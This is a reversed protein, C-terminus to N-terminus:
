MGCWVPGLYLMSGLSDLFEKGEAPYAVSKLGPDFKPMQRSVSQQRSFEHSGTRTADPGIAAGTWQLTRRRRRM